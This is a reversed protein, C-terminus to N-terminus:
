RVRALTREPKVLSGPARLHQGSELDVLVYRARANGARLVSFKRGAYAPHEVRYVPRGAVERLNRERESQRAEAATPPTQGDPYVLSKHARLEAGEEDVLTFSKQNERLVRYRKDGHTASIVRMFPKGAVAALRKAVEGDSDVFPNDSCAKPTAGLKQAMVKWRLGHKAGPTLAHAIEHLITDRVHAEDAHQVYRWSVTIRKRRYQCQGMRRTADDFTFTWTDGIGHENMLTRALTEASHLDM